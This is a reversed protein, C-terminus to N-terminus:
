IPSTPNGKNSIMFSLDVISSLNTHWWLEYIINKLSISYFLGVYLQNITFSYSGITASYALQLNIYLNVDWISTSSNLKFVSTYLNWEKYLSVKNTYINTGLNLLAAYPNAKQNYVAKSSKGDSRNEASVNTLSDPCLIWFSLVAEQIHTTYYSTEVVFTALSNTTFGRDTFYYSGKLAGHHNQCSYDYVIQDSVSDWFRYNGLLVLSPVEIPLLVLYMILTLAM